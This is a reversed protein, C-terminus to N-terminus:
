TARSRALDNAVGQPARGRLRPSTIVPTETNWAVQAGARRARRVLDVDEGTALARFGGIGRYTSAAIGLNAGHVHGHEHGRIADSTYRQVWTPFTSEGEPPLRVTGLFLQHGQRAALLQAIFWDPPVLSDADTSALWHGPRVDANRDLVARFGIARAAGVNGVSACVVFAGSSLAVGATHDSCSDAVVTVDVRIDPIRSRAVGIASLAGPLLHQENRAPIVVSVVPPDAYDM